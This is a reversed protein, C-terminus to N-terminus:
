PKDKRAAEAAERTSYCEGAEWFAEDSDCRDTCGINDVRLSVVEDAYSVWVTAHNGVVVGDKTMALTGLVKRVEGDPTIVHGPPVLVRRQREIDEAHDKAARRLALTTTEEIAAAIRRHLTATANPWQIPTPCEEFGVLVKSALEEPTM